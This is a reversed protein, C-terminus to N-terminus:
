SCWKEHHRANINVLYSHYCYPHVFDTQQPDLLPSHLPLLSLLPPLSLAQHVLIACNYLDWWVLWLLYTPLTVTQWSQRLIQIHSFCPIVTSSSYSYVLLWSYTYHLDYALWNSKIQLLGAEMGFVHAASFVTRHMVTKLHCQSDFPCPSISMCTIWIRGVETGIGICRNYRAKAAQLQQNLVTISYCELCENLFCLVNCESCDFGKQMQLFPM